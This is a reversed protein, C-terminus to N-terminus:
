QQPVRVYIQDGKKEITIDLENGNDLVATARYFDDRPEDDITVAICSAKGYFQHHIIDTVIPCASKEIASEHSISGAIMSIVFVIIWAYFYNKKQGLITARKWLYVPILLTWGLHPADYGAAKLNKEDAVCLGINAMLVLWGINVSFFLAMLAGFLQIGVLSWVFRNDVDAPALPPPGSVHPVSGALETEKLSVWDGSGAWVKTEPTITSSATFGKMQETTFPGNRAGNKTYYWTADSM